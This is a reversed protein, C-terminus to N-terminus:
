IFTTMKQKKVFANKLDNIENAITIYGSWAHIILTSHNGFQDNQKDGIQLENTDDNKKPLNTPITFCSVLGAM